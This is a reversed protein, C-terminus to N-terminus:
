HNYADLSSVKVGSNKTRNISRLYVLIAKSGGRSRRLNVGLWNSSPQALYLVHNGTFRGFHGGSFPTRTGAQVTWRRFYQRIAPQTLGRDLRAPSTSPCSHATRIFFSPKDEPNAFGEGQAYGVKARPAAHPNRNSPRSHGRKGSQFTVKASAALSRKGGLTFSRESSSCRLMPCRTLTPNPDILFDNEYELTVKASQDSNRLLRCNTKM